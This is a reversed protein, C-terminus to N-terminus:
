QVRLVRAHIGRLREPAMKIVERDYTTLGNQEGEVDTLQTYISGTLGAEELKRLADVMEGYRALVRESSSDEYGWHRIDGTRWEHDKVFVGIGGYEGLVSAQKFGLSTLIAPDPYSHIDAIASSVAASGALIVAHGQSQMVEGSHVDILRSPDWQRVRSGWRELDYTGWGENFLVWMIISPHDALQEVDARAESEFEEASSAEPVYRQGQTSRQADGPPPLDQWVLLGLKDCYYYWREPEIKIHKRVTNFGMSKMTRIDFALAEDAPATYLGDPWFGQDLVGLNYTYRDNLYIRLHKSADARLAVKRLAFYSEVHDVVKGGQLLRVDLGYLYPDDPSWLHPHSVRLSLSENPKGAARAGDSAVAEVRYGEMAASVSSRATIALLSRDVDPTLVLSEISVSPVPELWVSQWIGSSATYFIGAPKLTQKGHPNPGADTPDWVSVEVENSGSRVYPTIDLSFSQYGGRHRGVERGNVFVTCEFDVAGFHLLLRDGRARRPPVFSRRYWLRQHPLLARKVGSLASEVPYPVLVTGAFEAPTPAGQERDVIAYQWLGNLSQWRARVMQPRPYQAWPHLPDIQKAWRTLLDGEVPHWEAPGAAWGLPVMVVATVMWILCAVRAM